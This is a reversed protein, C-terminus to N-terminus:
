FLDECGSATLAELKLTLDQELTSVRAFGIKSM